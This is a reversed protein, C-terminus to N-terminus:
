RHGLQYLRDKTFLREKKLEFVRAREAPTMHSGRRDLEHIAFDLASHRLELDRIDIRKM